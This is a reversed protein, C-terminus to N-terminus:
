FNFNTEDFFILKINKYKNRLLNINKRKIEKADERNGAFKIENKTLNKIENQFNGMIINLTDNKSIETNGNTLLSQHQSEIQSVAKSLISKTYHSNHSNDWGYLTKSSTKLEYIDLSGDNKKIVLDPKWIVKEQEFVEDFKVVKDNDSYGLMWPNENLILNLIREEKQKNVKKNVTEYDEKSLLIKLDNKHSDLLRPIYEKAPKKEKINSLFLLIKKFNELKSYNNIEKIEKLKDEYRILDEPGLERLNDIIKNIQGEDVDTNKIQTINKSVLECIQNFQEFNINKKSNEDLIIESNDSLSNKFYMHAYLYDEEDLEDNKKSQIEIENTKEDLTSEKKYIRTKLSTDESFYSTEIKKLVRDDYKKQECFFSIKKLLEQSDLHTKHVFYLFVELALANIEYTNNKKLEQGFKYTNGLILSYYKFPQHLNILLKLGESKNYVILFRPKSGKSLESSEGHVINSIKNFLDM